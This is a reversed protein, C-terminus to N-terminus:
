GRIGIAFRDGNAGPGKGYDHWNMTENTEVNIAGFITVTTFGRCINDIFDTAKM